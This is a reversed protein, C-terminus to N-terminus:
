DGCIICIVPGNVEYGAYAAQMAGVVSLASNTSIDLGTHKKVLDQATAINENTAFWGKGGTKEILPILASKRQATIDVIADADSREDPGEYMGFADSLPHCSSTQVIHVQPCTESKHETTKKLLYSALAQATTGSSTGIFIAAASKKSNAKTPTQESSLGDVLEEALSEYGILATDDTSQRLSRVGENIAQALAQLPREKVLIRINGESERSAAIKKLKELKHPAVHNGVFIDLNVVESDTPRLPTTESESQKVQTFRKSNLENVYLAAALAANGSSSIAFRRDGDAYYKDIMVPVSRGKHSGYKHLDERKFYLDPVSHRGAPLGIAVALDPYHELPTSAGNTNTSKTTM